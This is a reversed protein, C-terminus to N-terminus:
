ATVQVVDSVIDHDATGSTGTIQTGDAFSVTVGDATEEIKTSEKGWLVEVLGGIETCQELLVEQLRYRMIRLAPYGGEGEDGILIEGFRYGDDSYAGMRSYTYGIEKLKDYVGIPNNLARIAHSALTVSGGSKSPSSRIEFITSRIGQRALCLALAPGSLGAGAILVHRAATM